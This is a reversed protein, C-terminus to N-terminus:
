DDIRCNSLLLFSTMSSSLDRFFAVIKIDSHSVFIHLLLSGVNESCWSVPTSYMVTTRVYKTTVDPIRASFEGFSESGALTWQKYIPLYFNGAVMAEM